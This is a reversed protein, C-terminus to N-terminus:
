TEYSDFYVNSKQTNTVIMLDKLDSGENKFQFYWTDDKM